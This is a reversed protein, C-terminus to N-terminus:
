PYIDMRLNLSVTYFKQRYFVSMKLSSLFGYKSPKIMSFSGQFCRTEQLSASLLVIWGFLAIEGKKLNLSFTAINTKILLYVSIAKM